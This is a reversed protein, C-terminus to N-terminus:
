VAGSESLGSMADVRGTMSYDFIINKNRPIFFGNRYKRIPVPILRPVMRILKREGQEACSTTFLNHEDIGLRQIPLCGTLGVKQMETLKESTNKLVPVKRPKCWEGSALFISQM